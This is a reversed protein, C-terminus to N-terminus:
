SGTGTDQISVTVFVLTFTRTHSATLSGGLILPIRAGLTRKQYTNATQDFGTVLMTAGNHVSMEQGGVGNRNIDPEQFTQQNVGSGTTVPTISNLVSNDFSLSLNVDDNDDADPYVFLKFGVSGNSLTYGPVGGSGGVAGVAGASGSLFYFLHSTDYTAPRRNRMTLPVSISTNAHGITNLAQVVASTGAFAGSLISFGASGATGAVLSAPSAGLNLGPVNRLAGQIIATWDVGAEGDDSVTVQVSQFNLSILRSMVAIQDKIVLDAKEVAEKTDTVTITGLDDNPIAKGAQTLVADLSSVVNSLATTTATDTYKIQTSPDTNVSGGGGSSNVQQTSSKFENSYEGKGSRVPLKYTKTVLRYFRGMRKEPNYEWSIGLRNAFLDAIEAAPHPKDDPMEVMLASASDSAAGAGTGASEPAAIAGPLGQALTPYPGNAVQGAGPAGPVVPVTPKGATRAGQQLQLNKPQLLYTPLYVDSDIRFPIGTALSLAQVGADLSVWRSKPESSHDIVTLIKSRLALPLTADRSLVVTPGALYPKDVDEESDIAERKHKLRALFQQEAQDSQAEVAIAAGKSADQQAQTVCGSLSVGVISAAILAATLQRYKIVNM